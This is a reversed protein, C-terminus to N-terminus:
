HGGGDAILKEYQEASLLKGVEGPDALDVVLMWADKQASANVLEPKEKLAPNIEVVKGSVPSVLDSVAKVSEVVGFPSGAKVERGIEPLEVFVVDGLESQAHDTIGIRVRQPTLQAVWEHSESYRYEKPVM